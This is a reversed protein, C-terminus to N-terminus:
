GVYLIPFHDALRAKMYNANLIAAETSAKLGDSGLMKIYGYSILLILSSGWPASSV